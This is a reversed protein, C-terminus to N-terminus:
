MHSCIWFNGFQTSIAATHKGQKNTMTKEKTTTGKQTHMLDLIETVGPLVVRVSKRSNCTPHDAIKSSLRPCGPFFAWMATIENYSKMEHTEPM